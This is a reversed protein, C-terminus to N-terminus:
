KTLTLKIPKFDDSSLNTNKIYEDYLKMSTIKRIEPNDITSFLIKKCYVGDSKLTNEIEILEKETLSSSAFRKQLAKKIGEIGLTHKPNVQYYEIYVIKLGKLISNVYYDNNALISTDNTLKETFGKMTLHNFIITSNNTYLGVIHKRLSNNITYDIEFQKIINDNEPIINVTNLTLRELLEMNNYADPGSKGAFSSGEINYFKSEIKTVLNLRFKDSELNYISGIKIEPTNPIIIQIIEENYKELNNFEENTLNNEKDCSVILLLSFITIFLKKKKM